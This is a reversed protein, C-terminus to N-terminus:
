IPCHLFIDFISICSYRASCLFHLKRNFTAETFTVSDATEVSRTVNVSFSRLPFGKQVPYNIWREMDICYGSFTKLSYLFLFNPWLQIINISLTLGICIHNVLRPSVGLDLVIIELQARTQIREIFEKCTIYYPRIFEIM